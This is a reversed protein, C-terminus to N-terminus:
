GHKKEQFNPGSAGLFEAGGLDAASPILCLNNNVLEIHRADRFSALVCLGALFELTGAEGISAGTKRIGEVAERRPTRWGGTLRRSGMLGGQQRRDPAKREGRGGTISWGGTLAFSVGTRDMKMKSGSCPEGLVFAGM